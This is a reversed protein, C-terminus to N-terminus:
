AASAPKWGAIRGGWGGLDNPNCTHGSCGGPKVRLNLHLWKLMMSISMQTWVSPTKDRRLGRKRRIAGTVKIVSSLVTLVPETESDQGWKIRTQAATHRPIQLNKQSQGWLPAPRKSVRLFARTTSRSTRWTHILKGLVSKQDTNFM